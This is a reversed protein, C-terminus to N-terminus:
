FGQALWLAAGDPGVRLGLKPAFEEPAPPAPVEPRTVLQYIGLAVGAAAVGAFVDGVIIKSRAADMDARLAAVETAERPPASGAAARYADHAESGQSAGTGYLIGATTAAALGVGLAVYGWITRRKRRAAVDAYMAEHAKLAAEYLAVGIARDRGRAARQKIRQWESRSPALPVTVTIERDAVAEVRRLAPIRGARTVVLSRTGPRVPITVPTLGRRKGDVQVSAGAPESYVSLRAARVLQVHVRKRRTRGDILLARREIAFGDKRLEVMYPGPALGSLVRPTSGRDEGDLLLTAEPPDSVVELQAQAPRLTVDLTVFTDARVAARATHHLAGRHLEIVHEGVVLESVTLPTKGAVPRGDVKVSAGAPTSKILLGGRARPRAPAAPWDAGPKRALLAGAAARLTARLQAEACHGARTVARRGGAGRVEYLVVEALCRAGRKAIRAAVAREAGLNKSVEIRCEAINCEESSPAHERRAWADIGARGIVVASSASSVADALADGLRTLAPGALHVGDDDVGFVAIAPREARGPQPWAIALLCCCGLARRVGRLSPHISSMM